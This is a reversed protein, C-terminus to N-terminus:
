ATRAYIHRGVALNLGTGEFEPNVACDNLRRHAKWDHRAYVGDASTHFDIM